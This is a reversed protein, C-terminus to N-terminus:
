VGRPWPLALERLSILDVKAYIRTSDMHRHRLVEGIESLSAGRRLLETALGHRFQHAGRRSTEIEARELARSVVCDIAASSRFPSNPARARLFIQRSNSAPRSRQLYEAIAHGVDRPVPMQSEENGKGHVTLYGSAWEIDDLTLSVIERARLGLRALLLLIAYDRRGTDTDQDCHSLVSQVVHPPVGRPISSMSWGAVVPVKSSWDASTDGHYHAYRLLSRLATTMIKAHQVSLRKAEDQVFCVVDPVCTHDFCVPNNGFTQDLFRYAFPMYNLLTANSLGREDRLYRSYESAYLRAPNLHEDEARESILGADTLVRCARRLAAADCKAPRRRLRRYRLYGDICEPTLDLLDVRRRKMWRSFDAVVRTEYRITYPRFGDRRMADSVMSIYPALPGEPTRRLTIQLPAKAEVLSGM